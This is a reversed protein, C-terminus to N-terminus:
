LRDADIRDGEVIGTTLELAQLLEDVTLIGSSDGLGTLQSALACGVPPVLYTKQLEKTRFFVERAPGDLLVGGNYMVVLRDAYQALLEMDHSIMLITQGGRERLERAIDALLYRGRHDQATTPEDMILVEPGIALVAAVALKRRDGFSLKFPFTDSAAELGTLRLVDQTRRRTEEESLNINRLGFRVEEEASITFLQYDPNQLVLGIRTAIEGVSLASIDEGHFRITGESPRLLGVIAKVLTSKGSGNQGVIGVFEGKRVELNVRDLAKVPPEGPYYYTVNEVELLLGGNSTLIHPPALVPNARLVGKDLLNNVSRAVGPITLQSCPQDPLYEDVGSGPKDRLFYYFKRLPPPQVGVRELMSVNGLVEDLSGCAEVTGQNLVVARNALGVIEETKHTTMVITLQVTRRISELARVVEASGLPDLQSTPEDLVLLRPFMTLVSGLAARQKQGGSLARPKRREMGRLGVIEMVDQVRRKIEEKELGLNAPGFAMEMFLDPMFLQAEPDQLVMSCGRATEYMPQEWPDAGDVLVEGTRRGGYIHPITGTLIYCLTSKGAGNAGLVAVFDGLHVELDINRLAPVDRDYAFSLGRLMVVPEHEM